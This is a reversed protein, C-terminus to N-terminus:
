TCQASISRQKKEIREAIQPFGCRDSFYLDLNPMRRMWTLQKKALQRTAHIARMRMEEFGYRGCLYKRMQRYGVARLAPLAPDLDGRLLLRSVEGCFDDALMQDFRRAIRRHLHAREACVLGVRHLRGHLLPVEPAGPAKDAEAGRREGFRRAGSLCVELARQVRQSDNPHVRAAAAPDLRRLEDHLTRLGERRARADLDGRLEPDASPMAALGHELAHFYFMTGGALLPVRGRGQIDRIARTADACFRAASYIESPECLDVLHHPVRARTAPGPKATGVDLGRYVLASDVCVVECPLRRALERVLATKGSATPGLLFIPSIPCGDTM